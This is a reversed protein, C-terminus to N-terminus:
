QGGAKPCLRLWIDDRNNRCGHQCQDGACRPDGNGWFRKFHGRDRCCHQGKRHYGGPLVTGTRYGQANPTLVTAGSADLVSGPALDVTAVANGGARCEARGFHRDHRGSGPDNGHGGGYRRETEGVLHTPRHILRSQRGAALSSAAWSWLCMPLIKERWRSHFEFRGSEPFGCSAHDSGAHGCPRGYHSDL